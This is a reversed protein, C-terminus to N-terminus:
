APEGARPEVPRSAPSKEEFLQQMSTVGGRTLGCALVVGDIEVIALRAGNGFDMMARVSGGAIRPRSVGFRATLTNRFRTLVLALGILAVFFIAASLYSSSAASM